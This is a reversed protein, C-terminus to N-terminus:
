ATLKTRIAGQTAQPGLLATAPDGPVLVTLLFLLGMAGMVTVVSSLLRGLFFSVEGEGM